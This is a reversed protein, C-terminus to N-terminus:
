VVVVAVVVSVDVVTVVVVIVSVLVDLVSKGSSGAPLTLLAAPKGKLLVDFRVASMEVPPTCAKSPDAVNEATEVEVMVVVVVVAVVVLVVDVLVPVVVVVVLVLVCVVVVTVVTGATDLLEASTGGASGLSFAVDSSAPMIFLVAVDISIKSLNPSAPTSLM